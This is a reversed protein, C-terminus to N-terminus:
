INHMASLIDDHMAVIHIGTDSSVEKLRQRFQDLNDAEAAAPIEVVFLMTFYDGVITQSIDRIDGSFEDIASALQAVIGARNRGNATVVIRSRPVTQPNGHELAKRVEEAIIHTIAREVDDHDNHANDPRLGLKESVRDVVSKTTNHM